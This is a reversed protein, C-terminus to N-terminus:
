LKNSLHNHRRDAGRLWRVGLDEKRADHWVRINGYLWAVVGALFGLNDYFNHHYGSVILVIDTYYGQFSLTVLM